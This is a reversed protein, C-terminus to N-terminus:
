EVEELEALQVQHLVVVRLEVEVPIPQQLWVVLFGVEMPQQEVQPILVVLEVVM